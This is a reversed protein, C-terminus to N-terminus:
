GNSAGAQQELWASLRDAPVIIRRESIRVAPFDSRGALEYAANRGINLLRAVEPISYALKESNM